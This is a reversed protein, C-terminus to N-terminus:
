GTGSLFLVPLPLRAPLVRLLLLKAEVPLSLLGTCFPFSSPLCFRGMDRHFRSFAYSTNRCIIIIPVCYKIMCPSIIHKFLSFFFKGLNDLVERLYSTIKSMSPFSDEMLSSSFSSVSSPKQDLELSACFVMRLSLWSLPSIDESSCILFSTSSIDRSISNASSSWSSFICSSIM